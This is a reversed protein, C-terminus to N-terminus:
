PTGKEEGVVQIRRTERLDGSSAGVAIEYIGPEVIFAHQSEDYFALKEAPVTLTVTKKEGPQATIRAFGRLEEVPRKVRSSVAHTYFQVM